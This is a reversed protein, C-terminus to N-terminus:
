HLAGLNNLSIALYPHGRPFSGKPYLTETIRLLDAFVRTAEPVKGARYLAMGRLYLRDAEEIKRAREPTDKAPPAAAWTTTPFALLVVAIWRSM